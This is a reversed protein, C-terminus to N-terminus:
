VSLHLIQKLCDRKLRLIDFYQLIEELTRQWSVRVRSVRIIRFPVFRCHCTSPM